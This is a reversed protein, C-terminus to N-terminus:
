IEPLSSPINIQHTYNRLATEPNNGMLFATMVPTIGSDICRSGFTHRCAYLVREEINLGKLVKKFVRPQFNNDDIALGNPSQFVLDDKQKGDLLPNLIYLLDPTLPLIREKGNKTEKRIRLAASTGKLSRALVEKIHIQKSNLDISSVRLGIAEANRVGTKFIFYIFPYYHSHKYASFKPTYTDNRFAKLISSIEDETFPKRKPQKAKKYKKPNIDELPNFTWIQAKVLWKVFDKLMTLRRNYTAGCFTEANLKLHINTQAVKDWKRLMNRVSNYNTHKECDMQKYTTTWEEFYEVISKETPNSKSTNSKYRNLTFDFKDLSIDQEILLAIKRAPLLNIKNYSALNLSYRKSQFRWRLRIRGNYNIVSVTGKQNKHGM